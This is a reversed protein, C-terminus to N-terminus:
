RVQQHYSAAAQRLFNELAAGRLKRQQAQQLQELMFLRMQPNDAAMSLALDRQTWLRIRRYLWYHFYLGAATTIFIIFYDM